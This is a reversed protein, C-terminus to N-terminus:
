AAPKAQFRAQLIAPVTGPPFLELERLPGDQEATWGLLNVVGGTARAAYLAQDEQQLFLVLRLPVKRLAHLRLLVRWFRCLDRYTAQDLAQAPDDMVLFQYRFRGYTLYKTFFWALGLLHTEAQNLIYRALRDHIQVSVRRERRKSTVDLAMKGALVWPASTLSLTLEVWLRELTEPLQSKMVEALKRTFEAHVPKWHDPDAFKSRADEIQASLLHAIRRSAEGADVEEPLPPRTSIAKLAELLASRQAPDRLLPELSTEPAPLLWGLWETFAAQREEAVPCPAEGRSQMAQRIPKIKEELSRYQQLLRERTAAATARLESVVKEIGGRASHDAHCTPCLNPQRAVLGKAIAATVQDLHDLHQKAAQGEKLVSQQQKQLEALQRQLGEFEARPPTGVPAKAARRELWEGWSALDRLCADFGDQMPALKEQLSNALDRLQRVAHNRSTLWQGLVHAVDPETSQAIDSALQDNAQPSACQVWQTALPGAEPSLAPHGALQGLWSGILPPMQLLEQDLIRRAIRERATDFRTISAPLGLSRLFAQRNDESKRVQEEVFAELRDALESYGALVRVALQDASLRLFEQSTEQALLTGSFEHELRNCEEGSSVLAATSPEAGNLGISPRPGDKGLPSLYQELYAAPRGAAPLDREERDLFARYRASSGCLGISLAEFLSTKGTGNPGHIVRCSVPPLGFNLRVQQLNRFNRVELSDLSKAPASPARRGQEASLFLDGLEDLISQAKQQQQPETFLSPFGDLARLVAQDASMWEAIDPQTAKSLVRRATFLLRPFGHAKLAEELEGPAYFIADLVLEESFGSKQGLRVIADEWAKRDTEQVLWHLAVQWTGHEDAPGLSSSAPMLSSQMSLAGLVQAPLDDKTAYPILCLGLGLEPDLLIGAQTDSASAASSRLDAATLLRWAPQGVSSDLGDRLEQGLEAEYRAALHKQVTALLPFTGNM